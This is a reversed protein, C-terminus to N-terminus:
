WVGTHSPKNIGVQQFQYIELFKKGDSLVPVWSWFTHYKMLPQCCIWRFHPIGVCSSPRTSTFPCNWKVSELWQLPLHLTGCTEWIIKRHQGVYVSLAPSHSTTQVSFWLMKFHLALDTWMECLAPLLKVVQKWKAANQKHGWSNQVIASFLM